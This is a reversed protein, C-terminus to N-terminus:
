SPVADLFLRNQAGTGVARPCPMDQIDRDECQEGDTGPGRHGGDTGGPPCIGPDWGGAPGCQLPVLVVAGESIPDCGPTAWSM